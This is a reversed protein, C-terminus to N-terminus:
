RGAGLVQHIGPDAERQVDVRPEAYRHRSRKEHEVDGNAVRPVGPRTGSDTAATFGVFRSLTKRKSVRAHTVTNKEKLEEIAICYAEHVDKIKTAHVTETQRMQYTHETDLEGMRMTLNKINTIKEALDDYPILIEDSTTFNKDLKVMKGMTNVIKWFGIDGGKTSSLM